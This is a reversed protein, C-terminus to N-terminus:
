VLFSDINLIPLGIYGIFKSSSLAIPHFFASLFRAPIYFIFSPLYCM